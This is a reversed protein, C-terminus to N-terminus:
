PICCKCDYAMHGNLRCIECHLRRCDKTEHNTYGCIACTARNQNSRQNDPVPPDNNGQSTEAVDSGAKKGWQEETTDKQETRGEWKEDGAQEQSAPPDEAKREDPKKNTRKWTFNEEEM